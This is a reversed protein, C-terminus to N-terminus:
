RKNLSVVTRTDHSLTTPISITEKARHFPNMLTETIAKPISKGECHRRCYDDSFQYLWLLDECEGHARLKICFFCMM